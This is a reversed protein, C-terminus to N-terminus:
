ADSGKFYPQTTSSPSPSSLLAAASAAAAVAAAASLKQSMTPMPISLLWIYCASGELNPWLCM